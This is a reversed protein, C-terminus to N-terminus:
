NTTFNCFLILFRVMNPKKAGKKPCSTYHCASNVNLGVTNVNSIDVNRILSIVLQRLNSSDSFCQVPAPNAVASYSGHKGRSDVLAWRKWRVIQVEVRQWHTCKAQNDPMQGITGTIYEM